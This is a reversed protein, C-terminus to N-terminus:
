QDEGEKDGDKLAMSSDKQTAKGSNPEKKTSETLPAENEETVEAAPSAATTEEEEHLIWEPLTVHEKYLADVNIEGKRILRFLIKILKPDFQKGSGKKLEGLVIDFSLKKRYVRNATM